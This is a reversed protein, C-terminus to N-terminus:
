LKINKILFEIHKVLKEQKQMLDRKEKITEKQNYYLQPLNRTGGKETVTDLICNYDGKLIYRTLLWLDKILLSWIYCIAIRLLFPDLGVMQDLSLSASLGELSSPLFGNCLCVAKPKCRM